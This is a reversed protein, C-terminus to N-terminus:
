IGRRRFVFIINGLIDEASVPGFTRSDSTNTIDDNLLYYTGEGITMPYSFEGRDEIYFDKGDLRQVSLNVLVNGDDNFSVIDGPIALVRSIRVNGDDGNYLVVDGSSFIKKTRDYGVLDGESVANEMATDRIITLGYLLGTFLYVVIIIVLLKVFTDRWVALTRAKELRKKRIQKPTSDETQKRMVM